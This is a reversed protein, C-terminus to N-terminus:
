GPRGPEEPRPPAGRTWGEAASKFVAGLKLAAALSGLVRVVRRVGLISSLAFITSATVQPHAALSRLFEGIPDRKPADSGPPPSTADRLAKSCAEAMAQIERRTRREGGALLRSCLFALVAALLLAVLGTILVALPWGTHPALALLMSAFCLGLGALGVIGAVAFGGAAAALREVDRLFLLLRAEFLGAAAEIFRTVRQLM